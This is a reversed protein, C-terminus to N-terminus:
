KTTEIAGTYCTQAVIDIGEDKLNISHQVYIRRAANNEVVIRLEGWQLGRLVKIIDEERRSLGKLVFSRAVHGASTAEIRDYKGSGSLRKGVILRAAWGEKM